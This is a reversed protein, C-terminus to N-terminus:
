VDTPHVRFRTLHLDDEVLYAFGIEAVTQLVNVEDIVVPFEDPPRFARTPSM